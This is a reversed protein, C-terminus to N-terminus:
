FRSITKAVKGLRFFRYLLVCVVHYEFFCTKTLNEIFNPLVVYNSILQEFEDVCTLALQYRM